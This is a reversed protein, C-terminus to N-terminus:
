RLCLGSEGFRVRQDGFDVSTDYTTVGATRRAVDLEFEWYISVPNAVVILTMM